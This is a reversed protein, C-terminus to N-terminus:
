DGTPRRAGLHRLLLPRLPTAIIRGVCGPAGCHCPNGLADALGFGYDFTIEEGPELDRLAVLSVQDGERVAEATPACSHNAHRALNGPGSGDIWRGPDLELSFVRGDTAPGPHHDVVPGSYHCLTDGKRHRARTLLGTGHIVSPGPAPETM